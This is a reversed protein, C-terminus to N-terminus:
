RLFTKKETLQHNNGSESFERREENDGGGDDSGDEDDDSDVSEQHDSASESFERGSPSNFGGSHGTVWIVNYRLEDIDKDKDFGGAPGTVWIVDYRTWIYIKSSVMEIIM